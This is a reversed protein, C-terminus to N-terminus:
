ARQPADAPRQVAATHSRTPEHDPFPIFASAPWGIPHPPEDAPTLDDTQGLATTKKKELLLRCVLHDPSQLESTHEESRTGSCDDPRCRTSRRSFVTLRVCACPRVTSVTSPASTARSGAAGDGNCWSSRRM